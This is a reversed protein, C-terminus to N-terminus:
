KAAGGRLKYKGTGARLDYKGARALLFSLLLSYYFDLTAYLTVIKPTNLILYTKILLAILSKLVINEAAAM